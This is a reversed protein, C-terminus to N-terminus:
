WGSAMMRSLTERDTDRVSKVSSLRGAALVAVGDAHALAEDIDPTLLIVAGGSAAVQHLADWVLKQTRLDLGHAPNSAILVRPQLAMERALLVKQMNGGSLTGMEARPSAPVIGWRAVLKRGEEGIARPRLVGYRQFTRRRQRKLLLNLVIPLDAVGGEGTRDDTLYSVGLRQREAAELGALEQEGVRISGAGALHGTLVEALERQGQGDIGVVALVTGAPVSFTLGEPRHRGYSSSAGLEKVHLLPVEDKARSGLRTLVGASRKPSVPDVGAIGAATESRLGGFMAALLRDEVNADWGPETSRSRGAERTVEDVIKGRRLVVLRDSISLAEPLKHTVFIVGVGRSRVERIAGFLQEVQAGTLTSTPEDLLLLQPELALVRAIELRQREGVSLDHVRQNLDIGDLMGGAADLRGGSLRMQERVTFVPVLAFHQFVTGIGARIAAVPSSLAVVDGDVEVQGSDPSAMGSLMALLTSKGAGNEGLLGVVEGAGVSLDVKDNAVVDGFRRTLASVRLRVLPADIVLLGTSLM